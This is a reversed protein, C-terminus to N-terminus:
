HIAESIYLIQKVFMFKILKVCKYIATFIWLIDHEVIELGNM